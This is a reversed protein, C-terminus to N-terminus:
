GPVKRIRKALRQCPYGHGAAQRAWGTTMDEYYPPWGRSALTKVVLFYQLGDPRTGTMRPMGITLTRSAPLM